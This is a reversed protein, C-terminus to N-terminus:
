RRRRRIPHTRQFRRRDHNNGEFGSPLLIRGASADTRKPTAPVPIFATPFHDTKSRADGSDLAQFIENFLAETQTQLKELRIKHESGTTSRNMTDMLHLSQLTSKWREVPANVPFQDAYQELTEEIADLQKAVRASPSIAAPLHMNAAAQKLKSGVQQESVLQAVKQMNEPNAAIDVATKVAYTAASAVIGKLFGGKRTM